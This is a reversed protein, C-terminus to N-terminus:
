RKAFFEALGQLGGSDAKERTANVAAKQLACLESIGKGGLAQLATFQAVTFTAEEGAGQIEVFEGDETLITRTVGPHRSELDALVEGVNSGDAEVAAQGNTHKRLITPLKVRAAM